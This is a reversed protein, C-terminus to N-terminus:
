RVVKGLIELMQPNDEFAIKAVAYFESMWDAIADIAADKAQTAVQSEGKEKLYVSRASELEGIITGASAVEGPTVKLRALSTQHATNENIVAYFKKVNALWSLYARPIPKNIELSGLAVPDNRFVVKAKKRHLDYITELAEKKAAYQNYAESTEDDETKNLNYAQQATTFLTKGLNVTDADYGFEAMVSAMEPLNEVNELSVRYLELTEAATLKKKAM